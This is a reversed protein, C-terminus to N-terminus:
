VLRYNKPSFKPKETDRTGNKVDILGEWVDQKGSKM